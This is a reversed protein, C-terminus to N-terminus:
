PHSILASTVDLFHKTKGSWFDDSVVSVVLLYVVNCRMASSITGIAHHTSLGLLKGRKPRVVTLWLFAKRSTVKQTPLALRRPGHNQMGQCM